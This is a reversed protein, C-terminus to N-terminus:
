LARLSKRSRKSMINIYICIGILLWYEPATIYGSMQGTIFMGIFAFLFGEAIMTQRTFGRNKAMRALARVALWSYLLYFMVGSIGGYGLVNVIDGGGAQVVRRQLVAFTQGWGNGIMLKKSDHITNVIVSEMAALRYASSGGGIMEEQNFFNEMKYKAYDSVNVMGSFVLAIGIAAAVVMKIARGSVLGLKGRAMYWFFAFILALLLGYLASRTFNMFIGVVLAFYLLRLKRNRLNRLYFPLFLMFPLLMYKGFTNAETRFGPGFGMRIQAEQQPSLALVVGAKFAFIQLLGWCVSIITLVLILNIFRELPIKGKLLVLAVAASISVNALLSTLSALARYPNDSLLAAIINVGVFALLAIFVESRFLQNLSEVLYLVMAVALFHYIRAIGGGVAIYFFETGLLAVIFLSCLTSQRVKLM